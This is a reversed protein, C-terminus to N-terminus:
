NVRRITPTPNLLEDVPDRPPAPPQPPPSPPPVAAPAPQPGQTIIAPLEVIPKTKPKWVREKIRQILRKKKPPPTPEAVQRTAPPADLAAPRPRPRAFGCAAVGGEVEGDIWDQDNQTKGLIVHPPPEMIKCEGGKVSAPSNNTACGGVALTAALGLASYVRRM